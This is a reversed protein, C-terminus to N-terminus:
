QGGYDPGTFEGRGILEDMAAGAIVQAEVDDPYQELEVLLDFLEDNELTGMGEFEVNKM